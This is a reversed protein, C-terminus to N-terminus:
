KLFEIFEQVKSVRDLYGKSITLLQNYGSHLHNAASGLKNMMANVAFKGEGVDKLDLKDCVRINKLKDFMLYNISERIKNVNLQTNEDSLQNVIAALKKGAIGRKNRPIHSLSIGTTYTRM